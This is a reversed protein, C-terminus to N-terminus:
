NCQRFQELPLFPFQEAVGLTVNEAAARQIIKRVGSISWALPTEALISVGLGLLDTVIAENLRDPVAVILLDPNQETVLERADRYFCIGTESQFRRASNDSGTTFGVVQYKMSLQQLVPLYIQRIRGGTGILGLKISASGQTNPLGSTKYRQRLTPVTSSQVVQPVRSYNKKLWEALRLATAVIMFNPNAAGCTPFSSSGSVFLGSVGHVQCNPDVVGEKPSNSMRTTGTPHAKEVCRSVWGTLDDLWPPPLPAPLELRKFEQSILQSMRRATQRELDSVKWHITSLPLGLADRKQESLTVRSDPDPIQELIFHLENRLAEVFEPRHKLLRQLLGKRIEDNCSLVTRLDPYAVKSFKRSRLAVFIRRMASWPEDARDFQDVYAHCNLLREKEQAARSLSLGHAYVHRGRENDLWYGGFRSQIAHIEHTAFDWITCDTHDMMFRGVLDNQNGVGRPVLRNSALLLRANDIGGCCLILANSKVRVQKGSLSRVEASEFRMGGETTNLHTLNAHLLVQVNNSISDALDRGFHVATKDKTSKSFQWFMPELFRDDLDPQPQDAKLHKWIADDFCCGGL